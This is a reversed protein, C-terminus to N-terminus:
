GRRSETVEKGKLSELFLNTGEKITTLPTRLEHSMLSFFETKMRDIEKLKACM